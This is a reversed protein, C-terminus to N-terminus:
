RGDKEYTVKLSKGYGFEKMAQEDLAGIEGVGRLKVSGGLSEQLYHELNDLHIEMM